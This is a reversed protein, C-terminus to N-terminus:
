KLKVPIYRYTVITLQYYTTSVGYHRISPGLSHNWTKMDVEYSYLFLDELLPAFNIAIQIGVSKKFVRNEFGVYINDILYALM